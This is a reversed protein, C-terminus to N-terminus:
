FIDRSTLRSVAIHHVVCTERKTNTKSMVGQGYADEGGRCVRVLGDGGREGVHKGTEGRESM